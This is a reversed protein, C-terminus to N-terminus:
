VSLTDDDALERTAKYIVNTGAIMDHLARKKDTFGALIFGIFLIFASIIQGVYRIVATIINIDGGDNKIVQLGLIMKGVTQGRTGQLYVGNGLGLIFSLTSYISQNGFSVIYAIVSILLGDILAALFRIWFGAYKM